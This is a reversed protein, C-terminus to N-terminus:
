AAKQKQSAGEEFAKQETFYKREKFESKKGINADSMPRYYGIIRTYCEVPQRETDKLIM